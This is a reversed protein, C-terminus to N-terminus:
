KDYHEVDLSTKDVDSAGDSGVAMTDQWQKAASVATEELMDHMESVWSSRRRLVDSEDLLHDSTGPHLYQQDGVASGLCSRSYNDFSCVRRYVSYLSRLDKHDSSTEGSEHKVNWVGSPLHGYFNQKTCM